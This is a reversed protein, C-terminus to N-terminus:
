SRVTTFKYNGNTSLAIFMKATPTSNEWVFHNPLKGNTFIKYSSYYIM